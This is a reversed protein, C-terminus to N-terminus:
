TFIIFLNCYYMIKGRMYLYHTSYYIGPTKLTFFFILQMALRATTREIDRGCRHASNGSHDEPVRNIGLRNHVPSIITLILFWYFPGVSPFIVEMSIVFSFCFLFYYAMTGLSQLTADSEFIM